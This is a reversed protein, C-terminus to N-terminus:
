GRSDPLRPKETLGPIRRDADEMDTNCACMVLSPKKERLTQLPFEPAKAQLALVKWVPFPTSTGPLQPGLSAKPRQKDGMWTKRDGDWSSIVTSSHGLVDSFASRGSRGCGGWLHWPKDAAPRKSSRQTSTATDPAPHHEAAKATVTPVGCTPTLAVLSSSPLPGGGLEGEGRQEGAAM